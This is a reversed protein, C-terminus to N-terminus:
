GASQSCALTRDCPGRVAPMRALWASVFAVVMGILVDVLYHGGSKVTAVLMLVSYVAAPWRLWRLPWCALACLVALVAHFSPMTVLGTTQAVDYTRFTGAELALRIAVSPDALDNGAAPVLLMGAVTFGFAIAIARLYPRADREMAVVLTVATTALIVQPYIWSLLANLTPHSGLWMRWATWSFGLQADARRLVDDRFPGGWSGVVYSLTVAAHSMLLMCAVAYGTRALAPSRGTSAWGLGLFIVSVGVPLEFSKWVITWGWLTMVALSGVSIAAM